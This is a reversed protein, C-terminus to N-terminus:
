KKIPREHRILTPDKDTIRFGLIKRFESASRGPCLDKAHSLIITHVGGKLVADLTGLQSVMYGANLSFSSDDHLTCCNPDIKRFIDKLNVHFIPAILVHDALPERAFLHQGPKGIVWRGQDSQFGTAPRM